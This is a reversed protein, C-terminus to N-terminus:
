SLSVTQYPNVCPPGDSIRITRAHLDMIVACVTIYHEEPPLEPDEHRCISNPYEHHDRLYSELDDVGIPRKADLLERLRELRYRSWPRRENPPEVIGLQDPDVFHNTHVVCENECPLLRVSDPAAEIDVVQDPTQAILFNASCARAEDTVIAVATSFDRARLINYCRVHFPTSDRMWDDVTTTMGNIALGLGASNLGIKGGVIGAETFALTQLGDAETTRLLAGQVQPIWDWNQGILLHGNASASPQV